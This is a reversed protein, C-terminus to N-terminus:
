TALGHAALEQDVMREVETRMDENLDRKHQRLAPRMYPQPPAGSVSKRFLLEGDIEFRLASGEEAVIPGRGFEVAKAYDTAAVVARQMLGRYQMHISNALRGTDKPAKISATSEVRRGTKEVGKDAAEPARDSMSRLSKEFRELEDDHEDFGGFETM